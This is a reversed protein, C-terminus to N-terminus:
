QGYSLWEVGEFTGELGACHAFVRVRHGLAVLHRSLEWAMTESGGIGQARVTDPNWPELAPGTSIVIDLPRGAEEHLAGRLLERTVAGSLASEAWPVGGRRNLLELSGPLRSVCSFRKRWRLM